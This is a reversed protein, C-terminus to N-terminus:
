FKSVAMEDIGLGHGELVRILQMRDIKDVFGLRFFLPKKHPFEIFEIQSENMRDMSSVGELAFCFIKEAM